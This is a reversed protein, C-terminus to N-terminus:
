RTKAGERVAREIMRQLRKRAVPGRWLTFTQACDRCGYASTMDWGQAWGTIPKTGATYAHRIMDRVYDKSTMGYANPTNMPNHGKMGGAVPM